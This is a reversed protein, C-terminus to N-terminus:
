LRLVDTLVIRVDDFIGHPPVPSGGGDPHRAARGVASPSDRASRPQSASTQCRSEDDDDDDDGQDTPMIPPPSASAVPSFRSALARVMLSRLTNVARMTEPDVRMPLWGDVILLGTPADYSLTDDSAGLMVIAWPSTQSLDCLTDRDSFAMQRGYIFFSPPQTPLGPGLPPGSLSREKVGGEGDAEEDDDNDVESDDDDDDDGDKESDGFRDLIAWSSAAATGSPAMDQRRSNGRRNNQRSTNQLARRQAKEARRAEVVAERLLRGVASEPAGRICLKSKTEFADIRQGALGGWRKHRMASPDDYDSDDGPQQKRSLLCKAYNVAVHPFLGACLVGRVLKADSAHESWVSADVFLDTTAVASSSPERPEWAYRAIGQLLGVTQVICSHRRIIDTPAGTGGGRGGGGVAQRMPLTSHLLDSSSSMAAPTARVQPQQNLFGSNKLVEFFQRKYGSLTILSRRNLLHEVPQLSHDVEEFYRQLTTSLVVSANDAASPQMRLPPPTHPAGRWRMQQDDEVEQRGRPALHHHYDAAAAIREIEQKISTGGMSANRWTLVAWNYANIVVVHDSNSRMAFLRKARQVAKQQELPSLFLQQVDAASALTLVPDLCRLMAALLIIKALHPQTPLRNLVRGLPTVLEPRSTDFAGLSVLTRFSFQYMATSPPDMAEMLLAWPDRYGMVALRLVVDDLRCRTIEAPPFAPMAHYVARTYLRYCVGSRVRGARGLRQRANARAVYDSRLQSSLMNGGGTTSNQLYKGLGSDIVFAVDDITIGSEAINTALVLKVHGPPAPAFAQLQTAPDITSHLTIIHLKPLTTTTGSHRGGTSAQRSWWASVTSRATKLHSWGPLFVLISPPRQASLRHPADEQQGRFFLSAHNSVIHLVLAAVLDYDFAPLAMATYRGVANEVRPSESAATAEATGDSAAMSEEEPTNTAADDDGKRYSAEDGDGLTNAIFPARGHRYGARAMAPTPTARVLQLVDELYYEKVPHLRGDVNLVPAGGFYESFAKGQLTASMLIVRLGGGGGNDLTTSSSSSSSSTSHGNVDSATPPAGISAVMQGSATRAALLKKVLVMILDVNVDRDHIEDIVLYKVGKLEPDRTLLQLLVGTTCLNIHRGPRSDLRVSYGVSEGVKELREAAIRQAITLASLRRPQTVVISCSPGVGRVIADELLYQPVQTTKGCGTSGCVIVVHHDRVLQLLSDRVAHMPLASRADRFHTHYHPHAHLDRLQNAMSSSLRATLARDVVPLSPPAAGNLSVPAAGMTTDTPSPSRVAGTTLPTGVSVADGRDCERGQLAEGIGVADASIREGDDCVVGDEDKAAAASTTLAAPQEPPLSADLDMIRVMLHRPMTLTAALDCGNLARPFTVILREVFKCFIADNMLLADYVGEFALEEAQDRSMGTQTVAITARDPVGPPPTLSAATANPHSAELTVSVTCVCCNAKGASAHRPAEARSTAANPIANSHAVDLTVEGDAHDDNHDDGQQSSSDGRSDGGGPTTSMNTNTGRQQRRRLQVYLRVLRRRRSGDVDGIMAQTKASFDISPPFPSLLVADDDAGGIGSRSSSATTNAAVTTPPSPSHGTVPPPTTGPPIRDEPPRSTSCRGNTTISAADRLMPLSAPFSPYYRELLLLAHQAARELAEQKSTGIGVALSPPTRPQPEVMSADDHAGQCLTPTLLPLHLMAVFFTAHNDEIDDGCLGSCRVLIGGM